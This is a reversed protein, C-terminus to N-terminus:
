ITNKNNHETITYQSIPGRYTPVMDSLNLKECQILTFARFYSGASLECRGPVDCPDANFKIQLSKKVKM